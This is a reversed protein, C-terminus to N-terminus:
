RCALLTEIYVGGAKHVWNCGDLARLGGDFDVEVYNAIPVLLAPDMDRVLEYAQLTGIGIFGNLWLWFMSTM